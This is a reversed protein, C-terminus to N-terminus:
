IVSSVLRMPWITLRDSERVREIWEATDIRAADSLSVLVEGEVVRTDVGHSHLLVRLTAASRIGLLDTAHAMTIMRTDALEALAQDLACLVGAMDSSEALTRAKRWEERLKAIM